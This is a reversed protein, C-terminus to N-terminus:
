MVEQPKARICCCYVIVATIILILGGGASAGIIIWKKNVCGFSTCSEADEAITTTNTKPPIETLGSTLEKTPTPPVVPGTKLAMSPNFILAYVGTKNIPVSIWNNRVTINRSICNFTSDFVTALCIDSALNM